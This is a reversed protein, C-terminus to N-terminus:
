SLATVMRNIPFNSKKISFNHLDQFLEPQTHKEHNPLLAQSLVDVTIINDWESLGPICLILPLGRWCLIVGSSHEPRQWYDTDGWLSTVKWGFRTPSFLVKIDKVATNPIRQVGPLLLCRSNDTSTPFKWSFWITIRWSWKHGKKPTENIVKAYKHSDYNYYTPARFFLNALKQFFNYWHLLQKWDQVTTTM